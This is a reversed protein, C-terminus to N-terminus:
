CWKLLALNTDSIQKVNLHKRQYLEQAYWKKQDLGSLCNWFNGLKEDITTTFKWDEDCFDLRKLLRFFYFARKLIKSRLNFFFVPIYLLLIFSPNLGSHYDILYHKPDQM